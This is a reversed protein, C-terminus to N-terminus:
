KLLTVHGKLKRFRFDSNIRYLVEWQFLGQLIGNERVNIGDWGASPDSTEFKVHGKRDFVRFEYFNLDQGQNIVPKFVANLDDGNPTFATPVYIQFNTGLEVEVCATDLCGNISTIALCVEYTDPPLSDFTLTPHQQFSLTDEDMLWTWAMTQPESSDFAQIWPDDITPKSPHYLIQAYAGQVSITDISELEYSCGEPSTVELGMFYNGAQPYTMSIYECSSSDVVGGSSIWNCSAIQETPTLNTWTMSLPICGQILEPIAQVEPLPSVTVETSETVSCDYINFIEVVYIDTAMPSIFPAAISEDSIMDGELWEYDSGGFATIQIVDGECISDLSEIGFEIPLPLVTVEVEDVTSCIDNTVTLEFDISIPTAGDNVINATPEALDLSSLEPSEAWSYMYGSIFSEGLSAIGGACFATDAGALLGPSQVIDVGILSTDASSCYLDSLTTLAYQGSISSPLSAPSESFSYTSSFDNDIYLDVTWPGTGSLDVIIDDPDATCTRLTDDLSLSPIEHVVVELAGNVTGQCYADSVATLQLDGPNAAQIIYDESDIENLDVESANYQYSLAFPVYGTLQVDIEAVQGECLVAEGNGISANPLAHFIVPQGVSISLGFAGLDVTGTGDDDGVVSSIFYVQDAIMGTQFGFTPDDDNTAYITGIGQGPDDHLIYSQVDNPDLFADQNFIASITGDECGHITDNQMTGANSLSPCVHNGSIEIFSCANMDSLFFEYNEGTAIPDSLFTSGGINGADGTVQYSAADGGWIDFSLQYETNGNVCIITVDATDPSSLFEIEVLDQDSCIENVETWQFTYTGYESVTVENDPSAANGFTATGGVVTWTGNGVSSSANLDYSLGCATDDEGADSIPIEFFTVTVQDESDCLSMNAETWTLIYDGYDDVTILSNPDSVDDIQVSSPGSWTGQGISEIAELNGSLGCFELDAGANALPNEIFTITVSDTTECDADSETWYLQYSGFDNATVSSNPDTMDTIALGTTSEWSGVGTSPVAALIYSLGCVEDNPGAEAIPSPLFTVTVTDNRACQGQNSETWVFDFEGFSGVSVSTSSMSPTDIDEGDPSSWNGDEVSPTASITASLGCVEMDLGADPDPIELFDVILSDTTTCTGDTEEWIFVSPGFSGASFISNPDTADSMVGDVPYEIWTGTGTTLIADLSVNIGCVSEDPGANAIPSQILDLIMTDQTSCHGFNSETWYLEVEGFSVGEVNTMPDSEDAFDIGSPGSWTGIGVSPFAELMASLGCIAIDNGADAVPTQLFTISVTDSSPCDAIGSFWVMSYSDHSTVTITTNPDNVDSFSVGADIALWTGSAPSAQLAYELGCITDNPGADSTPIDLFDISVVDSVECEGNSVTWTFEFTGFDDACVETLPDNDESFDSTSPDATWTGTGANNSAALDVCLGCVQQDDGASIIPSVFFEIETTDADSCVGDDETWILEYAGHDSSTVTSLAANDPSFVLEIDGTWQGIGSSALAELDYSLGCVSIDEEGIDAQPSQRFEVIVDDSDTCIGESETWTLTYIGYATSVVLGFPDNPDSFSIEPHPSSWTGLGVSPSPLSSMELGCIVTDNGAQAVPQETFTVLLSDRGECGAVTESWIIEYQGHDSATVTTSIANEDAYSLGTVPLWIGTGSSGTVSVSHSLGCIETDAGVDPDPIDVFEIIVTDQDSCSGENENWVFEYQGPGPVTVQADPLLNDDFSTGIPGLWFGDGISPIAALQYSNGCTTADDGAYAEPTPRFEIIVQDSDVCEGENTEEWTLTYLGTTSATAIANPDSPDDVTIGTPLIWEGVGVSPDAQLEYTLGCSYDDPGANAVPVETFRLLITDNSSCDGTFTWVVNFNQYTLSNCTTQPDEDDVFGILGSPSSWEGQGQVGNANLDFELGCVIQEEPGADAPINDTFTIDVSDEADCGNEHQVWTLTHTTFTTSTATADPDFDNSMAVGSPYEWHSIGNNTGSASLDYSLGCIDDDEGADADPLPTFSVMMSDQGICQGDDVNWTFWYVALSDTTTATANPDNIDTFEIWPVFVTWYGDGLSGDADLEVDIGCVQQDPGADSEPFDFFEIQCDDEGSCDGLVEVWTLTYVGTATVEIEADPDFDDSLTVGSGYEWHSEGNALADANLQGSTGCFELDPGADSTTSQSFTIQATDALECVGTGTVWIVQFSNFSPSTITANPDSIDSFTLGAFPAMWHGDGFANGGDLEGSLGCFTQDPGALPLSNDEFTIEVDDSDTCGNNDEIWTFTWTGPTTATVPSEPDFINLVTLGQGSPFEWHSVGNASANAALTDSLTCFTQDPGADADPLANFEIEIDDSAVCSGGANDQWFFTYVGESPVTVTADPSNADPSFTTGVPGGLWTGTGEPDSADFQYSLGCIEDDEGADPTPQGYTVTVQDVNSCQNITGVGSVEYVTTQTPSAIPDPCDDCSFNTGIVIPDGSISTWSFDTSGIANFQHEEGPCISVDPGAWVSPTVNIAVGINIIGPIPCLDDQVTILFTGGLAGETATWCINVTLPNTGTVTLQGDPLVEEINTEVTLTASTEPSEFELDACFEEGYCMEVEFDGTQDATGTFNTLGTQLPEPPDFACPLINFLLDFMVSGIQNGDSDFQEILVVFTFIGAMSSNFNIQGSIPDITAGPIPEAGSYGAEYTLPGFSNGSLPQLGDIFSFALSDGNIDFAGFNYEVDQGQCVYPIQEASIEPSDNCEVLNPHIVTEIYVWPFASNDVNVANTRNGDKWYIRYTDCNNPLNLIGRYVYKFIGPEGGGNCTSNALAPGCLQSVEESESDIRPINIGGWDTTPNCFSVYKISATPAVFPDLCDHFFNLTIEYQGGGLCKYELNAGSIHGANGTIAVLLLSLTGIYKLLEKMYRIPSATRHFLVVFIRTESRFLPM